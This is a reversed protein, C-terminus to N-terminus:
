MKFGTYTIKRTLENTYRRFTYVSLLTAVFVLSGIVAAQAAVNDESAPVRGCVFADMDDCVLQYTKIIYINSLV